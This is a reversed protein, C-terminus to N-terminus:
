TTLYKDIFCYLQTSESYLFVFSPPLALSPAFHAVFIPFINLTKLGFTYELNLHLAKVDVLFKRAKIKYIQKKSIM